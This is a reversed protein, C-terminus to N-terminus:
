SASDAPPPPVIVGESKFRLEASCAGARCRITYTETSTSGRMTSADLFLSSIEGEHRSEDRSTSHITVTAVSDADSAAAADTYADIAALEDTAALLERQTADDTARVFYTIDGTVERFAQLLAVYPNAATARVPERDSWNEQTVCGVLVVLPLLLRLRRIM